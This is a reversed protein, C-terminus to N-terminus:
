SRSLITERNSNLWRSAEKDIEPDVLLVGVDVIPVQHLVGSIAHSSKVQGESGVVPFEPAPAQQTYESKHVKSEGYKGVCANFMATLPDGYVAKDQRTQTYLARFHNRNVIRGAAEHGLALPDQAAQSIEYLVENDTLRQHQDTDTSFRGSPLWAQLFQRLHFDYAMRVHHYYVQMFMFYRALLLAEASHIGGSELGLTPEDSEQSVPLVRVTDVLRHHDFRGYAVGAHHSDRLLYDMRDVGLTDGSIIESLLAEWNSFSVNKMKEPGVAIKAVDEPALPPKMSSWIEALENGQILEVTFREHDWDDSLLEKEAAHSFPLHGIDHCLAAMRLVKRWYSRRDSRMETVMDSPLDHINDAATVTDFLKGALEMVGLSHEFRRHTAGPYVLYSMALQHVHRLRQVPGSDLVRREDSDLKVFDHIPDRIEHYQKVALSVMGGKGATSM